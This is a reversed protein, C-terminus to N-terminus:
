SVSRGLRSITLAELDPLDAATSLLAGGGPRNDLLMVM